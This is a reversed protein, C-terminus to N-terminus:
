VLGQYVQRLEHASTAKKTLSEDPVVREVFPTVEPFERGFVEILQEVTERALLAHQAFSEVASVHYDSFAHKQTSEVTFVCERSTGCRVPVSLSSVVSPLVQPSWTEAPDSHVVPGRAARALNGTTPGIPLALQTVALREPAVYVDMTRTTLVAVASKRMMANFLTAVSSWYRGEDAVVGGLDCLAEFQRWRARSLRHSHWNSYALANKALAIALCRSALRLAAAQSYTASDGLPAIVRAVAGDPLTLRVEHFRSQAWEGCEPIDPPTECQGIGSLVPIGHKLIRKRLEILSVSPFFPQAPSSTAAAIVKESDTTESLLIASGRPFRASAAVARVLGRLTEDLGSSFQVQIHLWIM